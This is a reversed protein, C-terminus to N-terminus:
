ANCQAAHVRRVEELSKSAKFSFISFICASISLRTASRGEDQENPFCAVTKVGAEM